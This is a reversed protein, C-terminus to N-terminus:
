HINRFMRLDNCLKDSTLKGGISMYRPFPPIAATENRSEFSEGRSHSIVSPFDRRGEKSRKLDIHPIQFGWSTRAADVPAPIYSSLQIGKEHVRPTHHGSFYGQGAM